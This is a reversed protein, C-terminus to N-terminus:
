REEAGGPQPNKNIDSYIDLSCVIAVFGWFPVSAKETDLYNNLLGHIIYTTFSLISILVLLKVETNRCKYYLKFGTYFFVVIIALVTLMGMFGMEALPGIYESHANGGEAFDTSIITKDRAMQFPAYQFMYTGPGWGLVPRQKFMALASNWRNIRELNSADTAINSISKVHDELKESSDQKNKNLKDIIEIRYAFLMSIAVLSLAAVYRVKIKYYLVLGLGIAGLISIWAARTYSLVLGATFIIAFGVILAKVWIKLPKYFLLGYLVPIYMAIIAGYSTHDNYFPQMAFHSANKDYLGLALHNNITYIIVFAFSVVYLGFFLLINKQKRFLLVPLFFSPFIFWCKALLHKFSVMPMSSSISTIFMWTLYVIIAISIPHKFIITEFIKGQIIKIVVIFLLLALFIESPLSINFGLSPVWKELALSLPTVFVAFFFIKEFAFLSYYLIFPLFSLVILYYTGFYIALSSLTLYLLIIVWFRAPLEFELGKNLKVNLKNTLFNM